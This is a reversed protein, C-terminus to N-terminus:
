VGSSSLFASFGVTILSKVWFQKLLVTCVMMLGDGFDREVVDGVHLLQAGENLAELIGSLIVHIPRGFSIKLEPFSSGAAGGIAEGRGAQLGSWRRIIGIFSKGRICVFTLSCMLSLHLLNSEHIRCDKECLKYIAMMLSFSTPGQGPRYSAPPLLSQRWSSFGGISALGGGARVWAGTPWGRWRWYLPWSVLRWPLCSLTLKEKWAYNRIRNLTSM